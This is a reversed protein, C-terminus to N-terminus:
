SRSRDFRGDSESHRSGNARHAPSNVTQYQPQFLSEVQDDAKDIAGTRRAEDDSKGSLRMATEAFSAADDVPNNTLDSSKDSMHMQTGKGNGSQEQGSTEGDFDNIQHRRKAGVLDRPAIFLVRAWDFFADRITSETGVRL